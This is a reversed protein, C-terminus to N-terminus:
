PSLISLKGIVMVGWCGGGMGGFYVPDNRVKESSSIHEENSYLINLFEPAEEIEPTSIMCIIANVRIM